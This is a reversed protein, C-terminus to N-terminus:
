PLIPEFMFFPIVAHFVEVGRLKQRFDAMRRAIGFGISVLFPRAGRTKQVAPIAEAEPGFLGCDKNIVTFIEPGWRETIRIRSQYGAVCIQVADCEEAAGDPLRDTQSMQTVRMWPM